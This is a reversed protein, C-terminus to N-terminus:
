KESKEEKDQKGQSPKAAHNVAKEEKTKTVRTQLKASPQKEVHHRPQETVHKTYPAHKALKADHSVAKEEKTKTVGIQLKASPQKEVHHRPQETIHKAFSAHKAPKANTTPQKQTNAQTAANAKNTTSAQASHPKVAAPKASTQNTNTTDATPQEATDTSKDPTATDNTPQENTNTTKNNETTEDTPQQDADTTEKSSQQKEEWKTLRKEMKAELKEKAKEINRALVEKARPNKVKELAAQLALINKSFKEELQKRLADINTATEKDKQETDKRDEKQSKEYTKLAEEQQQLAKELVERASQTEGKELLAKAENIRNETFEALLKAKEVDNFTLALEMKEMMTKVFYFFDGPLLSPAETNANVQKATSTQMTTGTSAFTPSGSFSFAVIAALAGSSLVRYISKRKNMHEGGSVHGNKTESYISRLSIRQKQRFFSCLFFFRELSMSLHFLFSLLWTMPEIIFPSPPHGFDANTAISTEV